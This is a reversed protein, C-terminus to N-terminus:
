FRLVMQHRVAMGTFWTEASFKMSKCFFAGKAGVLEDVDSFRSIFHQMPAVMHTMPDPLSVNKVTNPKVSFAPSLITYLHINYHACISPM